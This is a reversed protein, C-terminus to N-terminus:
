SAPGKKIFQYAPGGPVKFAYAGSELLGHEQYSFREGDLTLVASLTMKRGSRATISCAAPISATWGTATKIVPLSCAPGYATLDDLTIHQFAATGPQANAFAEPTKFAYFDMVMGGGEQPRFVWLRQRSIPSTAGGSRWVLYIAQDKPGAIKPAKVGFFHASQADVWPYPNGAAPPRLLEAPAAKIQAQNDWFGILTEAPTRPQLGGVTACASLCLCFTAILWGKHM